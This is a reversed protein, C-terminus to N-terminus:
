QQDADQQGTRQVIVWVSPTFAPYPLDV